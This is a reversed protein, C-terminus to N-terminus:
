WSLFTPFATLISLMWSAITNCSFFQQTFLGFNADSSLASSHAVSSFLSLDGAHGQSDM